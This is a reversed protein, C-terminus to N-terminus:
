NALLCVGAQIQWPLAAEKGAKLIAFCVSYQWPALGTILLHVHFAPFFFLWLKPNSKAQATSRVKSDPHHLTYGFLLSSGLELWCSGAALWSADSSCSYGARVAPMKQIFCRVEKTVCAYRGGRAPTNLFSERFVSLLEPQQVAANHFHSFVGASVPFAVPLVHAKFHFRFPLLNTRYIVLAALCRMSGCCCGWGRGPGLGGRSGSAWPCLHAPFLPARPEGQWMSQLYRMPLSWGVEAGLALLLARCRAAPKSSRQPAMHTYCILKRSAPPSFYSFLFLWGPCVDKYIEDSPPYPHFKLVQVDVICYTVSPDKVSISFPFTDLSRNWIGQKMKSILIFLDHM